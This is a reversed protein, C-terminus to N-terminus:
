GAGARIALSLPEGVIEPGGALCARFAEVARQIDAAGIHRHTVCRLRHRGWPRVRLGAAELDAVWRASDRGTGSVDVQVINTQPVTASLVPRLRNVGESLLRATDHDEGLRAGMVQVAELGAAAMIGLQRQTGGIMKRINRARAALDRRGALM